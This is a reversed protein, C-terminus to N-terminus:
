APREGSAQLGAAAAADVLLTVNSAVAPILSSPVAPDPAADPGFARTLADVKGAGEALFVVHRALAVASLTFSVRPVFPEMGAEPVGVVLREREHVAPKGPFLSLTHGDPGIGLLLLDFHGVGSHRLCQEYQDAAVAYGLEGKIRHMLPTTLDALPELLSARIMGYNSNPDDPGVARDDGLWFTVDGLSIARERVAAAFLENAAKPTSGGALVLQTCGGGACADLMLEACARAPDQVIEISVSM